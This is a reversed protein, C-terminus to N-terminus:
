NMRVAAADRSSQPNVKAMVDEAASKDERAAFPLVPISSIDRDLALMSLLQCAAVDDIGMFLVILDPRVQKIRSYGCTISEVYVVDYDYRDRLLANLLDVRRSDGSIAVVTGRATGM